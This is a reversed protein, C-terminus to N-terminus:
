GRRAAGARDEGGVRRQGIRADEFEAHRDQADAVADLQHAVQQAARHGLAVVALVPVARQRDALGAAQEGPQRPLQPDPIRVAVPHDLQRRTEGGDARGLIGREGGDLVAPAIEVPDLKVRLDEVGLAADLDQAIEQDPDAARPLVPRRLSKMAWATASM